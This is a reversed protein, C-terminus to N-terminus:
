ARNPSTSQDSVRHLPPQDAGEGVRLCVATEAGLTRRVLHNIAIRLEALTDGEAALAPAYARAVFGGGPRCHIYFDIKSPM